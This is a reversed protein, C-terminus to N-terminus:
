KEDTGDKKEETGNLYDEFQKAWLITYGTSISQGPKTAYRGLLDGAVKLAVRRNKLLDDDSINM